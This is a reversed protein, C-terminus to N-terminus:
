LAPTSTACATCSRHTHTLKISNHTHRNETHLTRVTMLAADGYTFFSRTSREGFRERRVCAYREFAGVGLWTCM